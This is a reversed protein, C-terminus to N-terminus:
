PIRQEGKAKGFVDRSEPYLRSGCGDRRIHTGDGHLETGLIRPKQAIGVRSNM